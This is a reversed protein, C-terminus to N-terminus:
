VGAQPDTAGDPRRLQDVMGFVFAAGLGIVPIAFLALGAQGDGSGAAALGIGIPTSVCLALLGASFLVSDRVMAVLVFAGPVLFPVLLLTLAISEGFEWEGGALRRYVLVSLTGFGVPVALLAVRTSTPLHRGRWRTRVVRVVM